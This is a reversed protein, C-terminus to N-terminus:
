QGIVIRTAGKQGQIHLLYHGARLHDLVRQLRAASTAGHSVTHGASHLSWRLDKRKSSKQQKVACTVKSGKVKCTVTVKGAPGQPGAAGAPGQSGNSGNPGSNGQPGQPGTKGEKGEKGNCIFKKETATEIKVGGETCHGELSGSFETVTPTEGPAGKELFVATVETAATVNVTCTEATAHRCGIWGAFTYGAEPQAELEVTGEEFSAECEEEGPLCEIGAPNSTVTGEGTVFVTLPFVCEGGSGTPCFTATVRVDGQGIEAFVLCETETGCPEGTTTSGETIIWGAFESGAAPIEHPIVAEITENLGPEIVLGTACTGAPPPGSCQIPPSGEWAGPFGSYGGVSSVEGHGTGNINVHITGAAFAQAAPILLLAAATALLLALRGARARPRVRGFPQKVIERDKSSRRV